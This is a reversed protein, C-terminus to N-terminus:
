MLFLIRVLSEVAIGKAIAYAHIAHNIYEKILPGCNNTVEEPPVLFPKVSLSFKLEPPLLELGLPFDIKHRIGSYDYVKSM